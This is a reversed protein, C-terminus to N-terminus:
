NRFGRKTMRKQRREREELDVQTIPGFTIEADLDDIYDDMVDAKFYEASRAERETVFRRIGADGEVAEAASSLHWVTARFRPM